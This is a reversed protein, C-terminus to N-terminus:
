SWGRRSANAAVSESLTAAFPEDIQAAAVEFAEAVGGVIRRYRQVAEDAPIAFSRAADRFEPEGISDLAYEDGISMASRLPAGGRTPYPSHSGLDYLPALRVDSGSLTLSYNKAHADTNQSAVTFVLAEFLARQTVSRVGHDPINEAVVRAIQRVSPGGQDQYKHSPDVSMAQCFDEQHLRHWVGDREVRDFRRTVFVHTGAATRMLEHDAVDLGLARAAAMSVFENVDHDPLAAAAPKLIHTTPTSDRPVGWSGDPFRFLAVKSQAGALSWRGGHDDRGWVGPDRSASALLVAVDDDTLREVDGTRSAADSSAEDPPLLQVAGAADRGVSELLRFPHQSTRYRSALEALREPSDPLLGALFPGAARSPWEARTPRMSLSMPTPTAQSRYDGDYAFTVRGSANMAFTGALTGDLYALLDAM